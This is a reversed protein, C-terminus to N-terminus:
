LRPPSIIPQGINSKKNLRSSNDPSIPKSIVIQAIIMPIIDAAGSGSQAAGTIEDILLKILWVLALPLISQLVSIVINVTAWGPASDYVLALAKKFLKIKGKM